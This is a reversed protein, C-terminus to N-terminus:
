RSIKIWSKGLEEGNAGNIILYYDGDPLDGENFTGNWDNQYNKQRFVQNGWRNFVIVENEPFDQLDKIVMFDNIGDGNPSFGDYIVYPNCNVIIYVTATDSGGSNFVVYRFSDVGCQGNILSYSTECSDGTMAVLTPRNLITFNSRYDFNDNSCLDLNGSNQGFKIVLSDNQVEPKSLIVLINIYSTDCNGNADCLLFCASGSGLTDGIYTVCATLPDIVFDVPSNPDTCINTISSVPNVQTTDMCFVFSEGLIITDNFTEAQSCEVDLYMTDKCNLFDIVTVEYSGAVNLTIQTGTAPSCPLYTGLYPAGNIYYDYYGNLASDAPITTICANVASCNPLIVFLSDELLNLCVPEENIMIYVSTDCVNNNDCAIICITDRRTGSNQLSSPPTYNICGTTTNLLFTGALNNDCSLDFYTINTSNLQMNIPCTDIAPSGAPLVFYATDARLSINIIIITTDCFQNGNTCVSLCITDSGQFNGAEYSFCPSSGSFNFLGLDIPTCALDNLVNFNFPLDTTDLCYNVIDNADINFTITDISSCYEFTMANSTFTCGNSDTISLTYTGPNLNSLDENTSGNSWNYNYGGPNSGTVTVNINGFICNSSDINSNFTWPEPENVNVLLRSFCGGNNRQIEYIGSSLGTPSIINNSTFDFVVCGVCNSLDIEADSLGQCSVPLITVNSDALAVQASDNLLFNLEALCGNADLVTFSYNASSLSDLTFVNTPFSDVFVNQNSLYFPTIGNTVTFEIQGNSQGCSPSVSNSIAVPLTASTPVEISLFTRCGNQNSINFTYDGARYGALNITDNNLNFISGNSMGTWSLSVPFSSNVLISITGDNFRCTAGGVSIVQLSPGNINNIFVNETFTCLNADTVTVTYVGASLGTIADTTASNSWSYNLPPVAGLVSITASGDNQGCNADNKLIRETRINCQSFINTSNWFFFFIILFHWQFKPTISLSM